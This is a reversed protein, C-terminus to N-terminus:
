DNVSDTAEYDGAESAVVSLLVLKTDHPVRSEMVRLFPGCPELRGLVVADAGSDNNPFRADTWVARGGKMRATFYGGVNWYAALQWATVTDGAKPLESAM